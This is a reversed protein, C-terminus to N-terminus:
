PGGRVGEGEGSSQGSGSSEDSGRNQARGVSQTTLANGGIELIRDEGIESNLEDIELQARTDVGYLVGNMLAEGDRDVPLMCPGIASCAVAVIKSADVNSHSTISQTVDCFDGWWDENPRHEAWGPEPVLMKHAKQAQEVIKGNQDVLVAKTEFTGIDVGLTYQM